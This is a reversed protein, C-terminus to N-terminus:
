GGWTNGALDTNADAESMDPPRGIWAMSMEGSAKDVEVMSSSALPIDLEGFRSFPLGLVDAVVCRTVHMHSVIAATGGPPTADIVRRYVERVRERLAQPSEGDPPAFHEDVKLRDLGGPCEAEIEARPRGGWSGRDIERLNPETFLQPPSRQAAMLQEAGYVARSLPSTYVREIPHAAAERGAAVAQQRGLDSLPVDMGGYLCDAAPPIVEGHRVLLLRTLVASVPTRM